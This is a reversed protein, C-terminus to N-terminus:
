VGTAHSSPGRPQLRLHNQCDKVGRARCAIDEAERKAWRDEVTGTLVVEGGTVEVEIESADLDADALLECVEERIREDSRAYNKPGKGRMSPRESGYGRDTDGFGRDMGRGLVRREGDRGMRRDRWLDSQGLHGFGGYGYDEGMRGRFGVSRTGSEQPRDDREGEIHPEHRRM